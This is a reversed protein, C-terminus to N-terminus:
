RSFLVLPDAFTATATAVYTMALAGFSARPPNPTFNWAVPLPVMLPM